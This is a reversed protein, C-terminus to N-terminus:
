HLSQQAAVSDSVSRRALSQTSRSRKSAALRSQSELSEYSTGISVVTWSQELRRQHLPGRERPGVSDAQRVAGAGHLSFSEGHTSGACRATPRGAPKSGAQEDVVPVRQPLWSRQHEHWPPLQAPEVRVEFKETLGGLDEDVGVVGGSRTQGIFLPQDHATREALQGPDRM